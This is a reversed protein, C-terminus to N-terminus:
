ANEECEEEAKKEDRQACSHYPQYPQCKGSIALNDRAVNGVGFDDAM